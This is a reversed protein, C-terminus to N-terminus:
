GNLVEYAISPYDTIIADAGNDSLEKVYDADNITWYQTAIGYSHAYDIIEKTGFNYIFAKYPIQLVKYEVEGLDAGYLFSLYFGLVEMISASRTLKGKYEEDFYKTIDNNFTGVITRDVIGYKVMTEYMKDTAIKGNEGSDKIEIIYNMSGDPRAVKEIYDLIASFSLIKVDEPIDDGRLGKYPTLGTNPDVFNEGMNLTLIENYTLDSAKVNKRGFKERVDSTRDLTDDHLLILEGDKTVHLDFELIDVKYDTSELCLKFASLTQEPAEGGGARHASIYARDVIYRNNGMGVDGGARPSGATLPLIVLNLILLAGIVGIISFVVIKKTISWPKRAKKM